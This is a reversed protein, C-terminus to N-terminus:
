GLEYLPDGGEVAQGETVFLRRLVGSREAQIENEMKMAALVLIGQGAEVTEGEGALVKVVRGPMYATVQETGMGAQADHATAALHTLPDLVEVVQSGFSGSVEYRDARIHRVTVEYHNGGWLISRAGDGLPEFELEVSEGDLEIQATNGDRELRVQKEDEGQRVILRM